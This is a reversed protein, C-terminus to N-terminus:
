PKSSVFRSCGEEGGDSSCLCGKVTGVEGLCWCGRVTGVEGEFLDESESEWSELAYIACINV